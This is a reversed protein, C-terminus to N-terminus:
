WVYCLVEGGVKEKHAKKGELIGKSTSILAIGVGGFVKPIENYGVYKRLGPKSVRKLGNILSNRDEKYKLFVRIKRMKENVLYNGVFGQSKLIKVINLKVRSLGIETYRHKAKSSNRIRTLLDSISDNFSM